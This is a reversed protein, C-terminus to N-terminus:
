NQNVPQSLREKLPSKTKSYQGLNAALRLNLVMPKFLLLNSPGLRPSHKRKYAPEQIVAQIDAALPAIPVQAMDRPSPLSLFLVFDGLVPRSVKFKAPVSQIFLYDSKFLACLSALISHM